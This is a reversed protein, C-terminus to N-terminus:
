WNAMIGTTDHRGTDLCTTWQRNKSDEQDMTTTATANTSIRENTEEMHPQHAAARIEVTKWALITGTSADERAFIIQPSRNLTKPMRQYLQLQDQM